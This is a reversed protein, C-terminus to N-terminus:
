PQNIDIRVPDEYIMETWIVLTQTGDVDRIVGQRLSPGDELTKGGISVAATESSNWQKIVFCPNIVLHDESGEITFSVPVANLEFEFAKHVKNYGLSAAGSSGTIKAPEQWSRAVPIIADIKQETFGYMVLSEYEPACDNAALAFHTVRDRDVAFRGDSPVVHMPWHNWPGAFPDETYESQEVEGWPTFCAGQFALFIKYRSRTNILEIDADELSNEPVNNPPSWALDRVEGDRNAM